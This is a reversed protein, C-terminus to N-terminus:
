KGVTGQSVELDRRWVQWTSEGRRAVVQPTKPSRTQRETVGDGRMRRQDADAAPDTTWAM